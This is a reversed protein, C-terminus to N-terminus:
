ERFEIPAYKPGIFQELVLELIEKFYEVVWTTSTSLLKFFKAPMPTLEILIDNM